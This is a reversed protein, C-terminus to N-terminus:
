RGTGGRPRASVDRGLCAALRDIAPADGAVPRPPGFPRRGPPIDGLKSLTFALEQEALDEPLNAPQGTARALDWGHALVETIRLHLAMRGPVQGFPVSVIRDLAGPRAFAETVAAASQRYAEVPDADPTSAEAPRIDARGAPAAAASGAFATGDVASAFGFNGITLHSLLDAVSWESCPTPDSWQDQRIAGVVAGTATLARELQSVEPDV